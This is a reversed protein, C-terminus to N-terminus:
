VRQRGERGGLARPSRFSDLEQRLLRQELDDELEFVVVLTDRAVDLDRYHGVVKSGTVEAIDLAAAAAASTRLEERMRRVLRQGGPSAILRREPQTLVGRLRVVVMEGVISAKAETPGRGMLEREVRVVLAALEAEVQAKTVLQPGHNTATISRVM